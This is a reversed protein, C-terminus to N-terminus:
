STGAMTWIAMAINAMNFLMHMVIPTLLGRTREYAIGMAMSLVFLTPLAHPQASGVHAATFVASTAIIAYWTRGMLSLMCSQLFARYIIEEVIPAGVVASAALVWAWVSDREDMIKQLTSHAVAGPPAGMVLEAIRTSAWAVMVCIPTALLIAAVGLGADRSRLALGTRDSTLPKILKFMGLGVLMSGLYACAALVADNRVSGTAGLFEAPLAKALQACVPITLFVMAACVFWVPTAIKWVDRQQPRTSGFSTPRIVNWRWLLALILVSLLGSSLPIIANPSM